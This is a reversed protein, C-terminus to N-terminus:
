RAVIRRPPRPVKRSTGKASRMPRRRIKRSESTPILTPVSAVAALWVATWNANSWITVRTNM